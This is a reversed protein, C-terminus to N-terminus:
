SWRSECARTGSKLDVSATHTALEGTRHKSVHNEPVHVSRSRIDVRSNHVLIAELGLGHRKGVIRLTEPNSVFIGLFDYDVIVTHVVGCYEKCIGHLACDSHRLAPFGLGWMVGYRM